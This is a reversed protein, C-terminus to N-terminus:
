MGERLEFKTEATMENLHSGISFSMNLQGHFQLEFNHNTATLM